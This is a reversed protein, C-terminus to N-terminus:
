KWRFPALFLSDPPGPRPLLSMLDPRSVLRLAPPHHGPRPRTHAQAVPCESCPAAQQTCMKGKLKSFDGRPWFGRPCPAAQVRRTGSPASLLAQCFAGSIRSQVAHTRVPVSPAERQRHGGLLAVPATKLRLRSPAAPPADGQPGAECLPRAAPLCALQGSALLGSMQVRVQQSMSSSDPCRSM